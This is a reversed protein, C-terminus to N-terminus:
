AAKAQLFSPLDTFGADKAVDRALWAIMGIRIQNVKASVVGNRRLVRGVISDAGIEATKQAVEPLSEVIRELVNTATGAGAKVHEM